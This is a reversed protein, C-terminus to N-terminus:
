EMKKPRTQQWKREAVMTGPVYESANRYELVGSRSLRTYCPKCLGGAYQERTNCYTCVDIKGSSRDRNAMRSIHEASFVGHLKLNYRARRYCTRCLKKSYISPKGCFECIREEVPHEAKLDSATPNEKDDNNSPTVNAQHLVNKKEDKLNEM